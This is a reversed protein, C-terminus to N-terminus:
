SVAPVLRVFDVVATRILPAVWVVFDRDPPSELALVGDTYASRVHRLLADRDIPTGPYRKAMATALATVVDLNLAAVQALLRRREARTPAAAAADLLEHTRRGCEARSLFRGSSGNADTPGDSSTV